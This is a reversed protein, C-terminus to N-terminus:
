KKNIACNLYGQHHVNSTTLCERLHILDIKIIGFLKLSRFSSNRILSTFCINLFVTLDDKIPVMESTKKLSLSQLLCEKM